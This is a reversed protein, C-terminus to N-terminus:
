INNMLMENVEEDSIGLYRMTVGPHSHRYRKSIVEYSVGHVTRQVMGFTKRLSHTGFNGVLGVKKCWGKVLSTVYPVTLPSNGKRSSFLFKDDDPMTEMFRLVAERTVDNMMLVNKKSTKKEKVIIYQGPLLNVVDRVRLRLVDSIRLGNNITLVFLLYDRPSSRLLDKLLPIADYPIPQVTITSGKKPHNPNPM